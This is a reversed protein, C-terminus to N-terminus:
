GEKRFKRRRTRRWDHIAFAAVTLPWLACVLPVVVYAVARDPGRMRGPIDITFALFVASVSLYALWTILSM